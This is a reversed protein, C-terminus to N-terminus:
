SNNDHTVVHKTVDFEFIELNNPNNLIAEEKSYFFNPAEKYCSPILAEELSHAPIFKKYKIEKINIPM